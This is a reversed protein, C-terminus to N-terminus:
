ARGTVGCIPTEEMDARCGNRANHGCDGSKSETLVKSLAGPAHPWILWVLPTPALVQKCGDHGSDLYM